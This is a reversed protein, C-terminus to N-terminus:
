FHPFAERPIVQFYYKRTRKFKESKDIMSTWLTAIFASVGQTLFRLNPAKKRVEQGTLNLLLLNNIQQSHQLFAFNSIM